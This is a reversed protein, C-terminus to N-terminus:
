FAFITPLRTAPAMGGCINCVASVAARRMQASLGFLEDRPFSETAQYIKLTLEDALSLVELKHPDRMARM